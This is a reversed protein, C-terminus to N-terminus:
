SAPRAQVLDAGPKRCIAYFAGATKGEDKVKLWRLPYFLFRAIKGLAFRIYKNSSFNEVVQWGLFALATGTSISVGTEIIEFDALITRLGDQSFRFKDPTDHCYPQMWPVDLYLYGGPKLVKLFEKMVAGPNACYQLVANCIVIDFDEIFPLAHIDCIYDVNPKKQIDVNVCNKGYRVASSGANLIRAETKFGYRALFDQATFIKAM